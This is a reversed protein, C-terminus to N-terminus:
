QWATSQGIRYTRFNLTNRNCARLLARALGPGGQGTSDRIRAAEGDSLHRKDSAGRAAGRGRGGGPPLGGPDAKCLPENHLSARVAVACM